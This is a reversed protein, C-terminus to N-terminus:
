QANKKTKSKIDKVRGESVQLAETHYVGRVSLYMNFRKWKNINLHSIGTKKKKNNNMKRNTIHLRWKYNENGFINKRKNTKLDQERVSM